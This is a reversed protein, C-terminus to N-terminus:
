PSQRPRAGTNAEFSSGDLEGPTATGQSLTAYRNRREQQLEKKFHKSLYANIRREQAFAADFKAKAQRYAPSFKIHDPTLGLPGKPFANLVEGYQKSLAAAREAAAKVEQFKM